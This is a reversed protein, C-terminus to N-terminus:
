GLVFLLNHNVPKPHKVLHNKGVDVVQQRFKNFLSLVPDAMHDLVIVRQFLSVIEFEEM